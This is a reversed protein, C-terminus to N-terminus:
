PNRDSCFALRKGDPSWTADSNRDTSQGPLLEPPSAGEVDLVHLRELDNVRMWFVLRKGDPSWDPNWGIEGQFRVEPEQEAAAKVIALEGKGGSGRRGGRYGILALREGDPSWTLGLIEDYRRPLLRQQQLSITDLLYISEFGEHKGIYALKDGDPSWRPRGGECLWERGTGDSTMIWIGPRMGASNNDLAFFCLQSGDPSWWPSNGPGLDQPKAASPDDLPEVYIHTQRFDFNRPTGDYALKKGDPSWALSGIWREDLHSVKRVAGGDADMVFAYSIAQGTAIATLSWVIGFALLISLLRAQM